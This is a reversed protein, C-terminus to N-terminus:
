VKGSFLSLLSQCCSPHLAWLKSGLCGEWDRLGWGGGLRRDASTVHGAQFTIMKRSSEMM